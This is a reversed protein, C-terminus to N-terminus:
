EPRMRIPESATNKFTDTAKTVHDNYIALMDRKKQEVKDTPELNQMLLWAAYAAVGIHFQVLLTSSNFPSDSDDDMEPPVALYRYAITKGADASQPEPYLTITKRAENPDVIYHTPAGEEATWDSSPNQHQIQYRSIPKIEKGDFLVWDELIFDTPLSYDAKGSVATDSSRDKWFCRSDMSFQEQSRNLADNYETPTFRTYNPDECFKSVQTRLASRNM